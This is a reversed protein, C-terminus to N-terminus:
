DYESARRADGFVMEAPYRAENIAIKREVAEILDIDLREACRILYILIDAMELAVADQKEKPLNMSQEPTLWQFHEVLEACEAIMAMTLNKPNHFQEWNRAQAFAKLRTNLRDLSDKPM